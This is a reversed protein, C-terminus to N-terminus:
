SAQVQDEISSEVQDGYSDIAEESREALGQRDLRKESLKAKAEDAMTRGKDALKRKARNAADGYLKEEQRSKPLLLGVVLGSVLAGACLAMPNGEKTRRFKGTVKDGLESAKESVHDATESVHDAVNHAHESTTEKLHDAKQSAKNQLHSTRDTVQDHLHSTKESVRNRLRGAKDAARHRYDSAKEGARHKMEAFKGSEAEDSDEDGHPIFASGIAALGLAVPLPNEKMLRGAEHAASKVSDAPAHTDFNDMKRRGWQYVGDLIDSPNAKDALKDMTGGMRGRTDNMDKEIVEPNPTTQYITDNM